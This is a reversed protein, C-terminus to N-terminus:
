RGESSTSAVALGAMRRAAADMVAAEIKLYSGCRCLNGALAERILERSPAPEEDLLARTALLFGPTCYSCQFANHDIFAEQIPDLRGDHELADVTQISSGGVQGALVLCASSIRGDIDVTCSGCMGIGCAERVSLLGLQNRLVDILRADPAVALSEEHGNVTVTLLEM